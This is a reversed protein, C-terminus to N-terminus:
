NGLYKRPLDEFLLWVLFLYFGSRWNKLVSFAVVLVAFALGGLILSKFDGGVIWQSTVWLAAGMGLITLVIRRRSSSEAVARLVSPIRRPVANQLKVMSTIYASPSHERPWTCFM